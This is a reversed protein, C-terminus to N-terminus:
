AQGGRQRESHERVADLLMEEMREMCARQSFQMKYGKYAEQCAAKEEPHEMWYEIKETLDAINGPAFLNREDLAFFRTASRLSNCIVPVLGSVIAELCAIAEIEILATHVYLDSGRLVGLLFSCGLSDTLSNMLFM